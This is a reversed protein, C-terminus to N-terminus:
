RRRRRPARRGAPRRSRARRAARHRRLTDRVEVRQEHLRGAVRERARCGREGGSARADAELERRAAQRRFPRGRGPRVATKARKRAALPAPGASPPPAAVTTTCSLPRRVAATRAPRVGASRSRRPRRRRPRRRWAAAGPEPARFSRERRARCRAPPGCRHPGPRARRCAALDAARRGGRRRVGCRRSRATSRDRILSEKSAITVATGPGRDTSSAFATQGRDFCGADGVESVVKGHEPFARGAREDGVDVPVAVEIQGGREAHRRATM